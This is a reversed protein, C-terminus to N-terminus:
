RSRSAPISPRSSSRRAEWRALHPKLADPLEERFAVDIRYHPMHAVVLDLVAMGQREDEAIKLRDREPKEICALIKVFM